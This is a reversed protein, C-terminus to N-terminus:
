KEPLKKAILAKSSSKKQKAKKTVAIKPLLKLLASKIRAAKNKHILDKKVARDATQIAERITKESPSKQAKKLLKKLIDELKKNRERRKKDQRLKKKASKTVPM